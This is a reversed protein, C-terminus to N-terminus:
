EDDMEELLDQVSFAVLDMQEVTGLWTDGLTVSDYDDTLEDLIKKCEPILTSLEDFLEVLRELSEIKESM